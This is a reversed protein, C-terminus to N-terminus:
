PNFQMAMMRKRKMSRKGFIWGAISSQSKMAFDKQKQFQTALGIDLVVLSVCSLQTPRLVLPACLGRSGCQEGLLFKKINVVLKESEKTNIQRIDDEPVSSKSTAGPNQTITCV